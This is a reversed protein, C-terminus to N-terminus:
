RGAIVEAAVSDEVFSGISAWWKNLEAHDGDNRSAFGYMGRANYTWLITARGGKAIFELTSGTVPSGAGGLNWNKFRGGDGVAERTRAFYAALSVASDFLGLDVRVDGRSVTCGLLGTRGRESAQTDLIDICGAGNDAVFFSQISEIAATRPSGPTSAITPATTTAGASSSSVPEGFAGVPAPSPSSRTVVIAVVAAIAAVAAAGAEIWARANAQRGSGTEEAVCRSRLGGRLATSAPTLIAGEVETTTHRFPQDAATRRAGVEPTSWPM